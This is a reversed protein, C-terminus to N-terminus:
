LHVTITRFYYAFTDTHNKLVKSFLICGSGGVLAFALTDKWLDGEIFYQIM